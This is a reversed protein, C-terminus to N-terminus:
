EISYIRLFICVNALQMDFAESQKLLAGEAAAKAVFYPVISMFEIFNNFSFLYSFLDKSTYLEVLYIALFYIHCCLNLGGRAASEEGPNYTWHIFLVILASSLLTNVLALVFKVKRQNVVTQLWRKVTANQPGQKHFDMIKLAEKPSIKRRM